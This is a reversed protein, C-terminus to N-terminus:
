VSNGAADIKPKSERDVLYPLVSKEKQAYVKVGKKIAFWHGRQDDASIMVGSMFNRSASGSYVANSEQTLRKFRLIIMDDSLVWAGENAGALYAFTGDFNFYISAWHYNGNLGWDFHLTWQGVPNM